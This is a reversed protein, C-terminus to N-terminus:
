SYGRNNLRLKRLERLKRNVTQREEMAQIAADGYLVRRVIRISRGTLRCIGALSCGDRRLRQIIAATSPPIVRRHAPM